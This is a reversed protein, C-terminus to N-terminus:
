KFAQLRHREVARAVVARLEAPGGIPKQLFDFAGDKMAQVATEISGHATLVVVETEAHERRIAGLLGLGDLGPMRLDTVVVHFAREALRALAAQGDAAQTVEHGADTLADAVFTRVGDDDDVVLVRAAPSVTATM